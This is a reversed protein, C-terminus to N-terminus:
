MVSEASVIATYPWAKVIKIDPAKSMASTLTPPTPRAIEINAKTAVRSLGRSAKFSWLQRM